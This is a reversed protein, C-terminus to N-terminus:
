LTQLTRELADIALRGLAFVPIDIEAGVRELIVASFGVYDFVLADASTKALRDALWRTFPKGVSEGFVHIRCSFGAAEWKRASPVAQAGFPVMVELSELGRASLEAVAVEVPQILPKRATLSPFSGACLVLHASVRGDLDAIVDQLHPELFAADAVVPTGDRLRTELPYGGPGCAPIQDRTLDDLAGRMEFRSLGLLGTLGEMLDPRPTQGITHIGVVTDSM